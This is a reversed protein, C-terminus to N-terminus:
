QSTIWTKLCDSLHSCFNQCISRLLRNPKFNNGSQMMKSKRVCPIKILNNTPKVYIIYSSVKLLMLFPLLNIPFWQLIIMPVKEVSQEIFVRPGGLLHVKPAKERKIQYNKPKRNFKQKNKKKVASCESLKITLPSFVSFRLQSSFRWSFDVLCLSLLWLSFVMSLSLLFFLIFHFIWHYNLNM